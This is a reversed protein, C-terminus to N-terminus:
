FITLFDYYLKLMEIYRYKLLSSYTQEKSIKEGTCLKQSIKSAKELLSSLDKLPSNLTSPYITSFDAYTTALTNHASNVALKASIENYVGTDLSIAIDYIANYYTQCSSLARLLIKKQDGDFSGNLQISKFKVSIIESELNQNLKISNQVLDADNKNAYASSVVYYYDGNKWVFGGAGISRYDSAHSVSEKEVQSKSLTLFHLEFASSSVTEAVSTSPLIM